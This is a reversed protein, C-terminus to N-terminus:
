IFVLNKVASDDNFKMKNFDIGTILNIGPNKGKDFSGIKDEFGLARAGNVTAWQLLLDLPIEPAHRNIIKIEELVSLQSNSALSDTGICVNQCLKQSSFLILDPLRKQIFLNSGPCLVFFYQGTTSIYRRLSSYSSYTNHVLLCRKARSLCREMQSLVEPTPTNADTLFGKERFADAMTGRGRLYPGTEEDSEQHHISIVDPSSSKYYQYLKEWLARSLSYIAHPVLSTPLGADIYARKACQATLFIEESRKDDLGLMEVFTFYRISSNAKIFRTEANNSIDGVAVIGNKRMEWDATKAAEIITERSVNKSQSVSYIFDPLGSGPKITKRLYSLELHCHANVFGPVLIGNYFELKEREVVKGGTDILDAISGDDNVCVIGNKLPPSSIPFVYHASLYRM